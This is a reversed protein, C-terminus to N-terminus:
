FRLHLPTIMARLFPWTSLFMMTLASIPKTQALCLRSFRTATRAIKTRSVVLIKPTNLNISSRPATPLLNSRLATKCTFIKQHPSRYHIDELMNAFLGSLKVAAEGRSNQESRFKHVYDIFIGPILIRDAIRPTNEEPDLLSPNGILTDLAPVVVRYDSTSAKTKQYLASSDLM